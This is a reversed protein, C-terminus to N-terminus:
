LRALRTSDLGTFGAVPRFGARRGGDIQGCVPDSCTAAHCEYHRPHPLFQGEAPPGGCKSAEEAFSAHLHLLGNCLLRLPIDDPSDHWPDGPLHSPRDPRQSDYGFFLFFTLIALSTGGLGVALSRSSEAYEFDSRSRDGEEDAGGRGEVALLLSAVGVGRPRDPRARFRTM